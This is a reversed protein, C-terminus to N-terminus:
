REIVRAVSSLSLTSIHAGRGEQYGGYGLKITPGGGGGGSSSSSANTADMGAVQFQWGGWLAGHFMHVVAREPNAWTKNTWTEQDVAFAAPRDFISGWMSFVSRNTWGPVAPGGADTDYVPHGTPPDYIAYHFQQPGQTCEPCGLTPSNGRNLSLKLDYLHNGADQSAGGANSAPKLWAGCGEGAHQAKSFCIGAGTQPNGNPYRARVLRQDDQFLQNVRSPPAGFKAASAPARKRNATPLGVAEAVLINRNAASAKFRSAKMQVGGSLTVLEGPFAVWATNSDRHDLEFTENLFYKGARVYVVVENAGAPGAATPKSKRIADRAGALTAFPASKTGPNTDRGTTSVYYTSTADDDYSGHKASAQQRRRLETFSPKSEIIDANSKIAESGLVSKCAPDGLNLADHLAKANTTIRTSGYRFALQHISCELAVLNAPDPSSAVLAHAVLLLPLVHAFRWGCSHSAPAEFSRAM